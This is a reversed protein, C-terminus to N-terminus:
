KDLPHNKGDIKKVNSLDFSHNEDLCATNIGWKSKSTRTQHHTYIGCISCFYHKATNTHFQYLSLKDEGKVIKVNANDVIVMIAGRKECISCNCQGLYNLTDPSNIEVEITKCHCTAKYIM